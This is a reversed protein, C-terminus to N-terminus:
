KRLRRGPLRTAQRLHRPRHAAWRAPMPQSDSQCGATGTGPCLKPRQYPARSRTRTSPAAQPSRVSTEPCVICHVQVMEPKLCVRERSRWVGAKVVRACLMALRKGTQDVRHRLSLAEREDCPLHARALRHEATGCKGPEPVIHVNGYDGMSHQGGFLEQVGDTRVKAQLCLALRLDFQDISQLIKEDPAALLVAGDHENDVFGLVKRLRDQLLDAQQAIQLCGPLLQQLDDKYPLRFEATEDSCLLQSLKLLAYGHLKM